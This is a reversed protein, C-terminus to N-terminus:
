YMLVEFFGEYSLSHKEIGALLAEKEDIGACWSLGCGASIESPVPIVRGPIGFERAAAEMAMADSTTAFTVVQKLTKERM